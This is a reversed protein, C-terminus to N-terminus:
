EEVIDNLFRLKEPNKELISHYLIFEKEVQFRISDCLSKKYIIDLGDENYIPAYCHKCFRIAWCKSCDETSKKSYDDIYYKKLKKMDVGNFVDGVSPSKGIKECVSFKGETDIYIKRSCPVCCGNFPYEEMPKHSIARSHISYLKRSLTYMCMNSFDETNGNFTKFQNEGWYSLSDIFNGDSDLYNPNQELEKIHEIDDIADGGVYELRIKIDKKFYEKSNFFNNISEIKEYTYPPAFVANIGLTNKPNKDFAEVLYKFGRIADNFSGKGNIYKRYQNHVQEPGDLSGLISLHDVTALYEAIEKTVLTLNTTLSFTIVKNKITKKAYEICWKLLDFQILPEGGYFTIGIKDNNSHRDIYDIAAKAVEKSMIKNNFNRSLDSQENYLCYGCRLNCIGTLELIIQHLNKDVLEELMDTHSVTKLKKLKPALFLNEKEIIDEFELMEEKSVKDLSNNFDILTRNDNKDFLFHLLEYAGDDLKLVKGTGVDYYYRNMNTNFLKGLRFIEDTMKLNYLRESQSCVNIM